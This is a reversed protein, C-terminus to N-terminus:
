ARKSAIEHSCIQFEESEVLKLLDARSMRASTVEVAPALTTTALTVSDAQIVKVAALESEDASL